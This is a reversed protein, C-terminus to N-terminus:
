CWAPSAPSRSSPPARGGAGRRALWAAVMVPWAYAIVNAAILPAASFAVYQLALVQIVSLRELALGAALANTAWLLVAGGAAAAYRDTM